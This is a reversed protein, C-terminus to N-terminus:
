DGAPPTRVEFTRRISLTEFPYLALSRSCLSGTLSLTPTFLTFQEMNLLAPFLFGSLSYHSCLFPLPLVPPFPCFFTFHSSFFLLYLTAGELLEFHGSLSNFGLM